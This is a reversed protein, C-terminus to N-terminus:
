LCQVRSKRGGRVIFTKKKEANFRRQLFKMQCELFESEAKELATRETYPAIIRKSDECSISIYDGIDFGLEKLWNRKPMITLTSQYKYGSMGYVKISRNKKTM